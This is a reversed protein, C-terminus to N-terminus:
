AVRLRDCETALTEAFDDALQLGTEALQRLEFWTSRPIPARPEDRLMTSMAWLVSRVNRLQRGQHDFLTGLAISDFMSTETM